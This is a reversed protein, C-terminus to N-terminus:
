EELSRNVPPIGSYKGVCPKKIRRDLYGILWYWGWLMLSMYVTRSSLVGTLFNDTRGMTFLPWSLLAYLMLAFGGLRGKKLHYYVSTYVLGLLFCILGMGVFGYDQIYRRLATYTNTDVNNFAVFDFIFGDNPVDVGMSRMNGYVGTLSHMGIWLSDPQEVSNLYADLAPIQAGGYHSIIHFPGREASIGKWTLSGALFFMGFFCLAAIGMVTALRLNNRASSGYRQQYMVGAMTLAVLIIVMFGARETSLIVHPFYTAVPLLLAMSTYRRGFYILNHLYVYMFCTAASLSILGCYATIRPAAIVRAEILRRVAGIMGLYGDTNGYAVSIKHLEVASVVALVLMFVGVIIPLVELVQIPFEPMKSNSKTGLAYSALASGLGFCMIAAMIVLCTNAHFGYQWYDLNLMALITCGLFSVTVILWPHFIDHESSAYAIVLVCTLMMALIYILM